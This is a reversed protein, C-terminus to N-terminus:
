HKNKPKLKQVLSKFINGREGYNRFMDFSSTGPSFLVADGPQALESALSVAEELTDVAHCQSQKWSAAIRHRMEGILIVARSKDRVLDSNEDFEFGKDKGGAILILPRTQSRIAMQMADLNTAKSDNIWNVGDLERVFECRHVPPTYSAIAAAMSALDIHLAMGIGLAAMINEANHIGHLNTSEQDIVPIGRFHITTNKLTFDAEDKVASFTIIKAATSLPESQANIVLTDEATLNELIRLKADRYEQVSTYRDLHNPSLNLWAAVKPHFTKVTELQFSSVELVMVDLNQSERVAKAFPLGINGSAM